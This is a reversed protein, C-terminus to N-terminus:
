RHINGLLIILSGGWEENISLAWEVLKVANKGNTLIANAFVTSLLGIYGFLISFKRFLQNGKKLRDKDVGLVL